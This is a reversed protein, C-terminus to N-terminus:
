AGNQCKEGMRKNRSSQGKKFEIAPSLHIGKQSKTWPTHGKPFHTRGTNSTPHGKKFSGKHIFGDMGKNWPTQGKKFKTDRKPRDVKHAKGNGPSPKHIRCHTARDVAQYNEITDNLSDGDIHHIFEGPKLERGAQKWLYKAYTTWTNPQFIKISRYPKGKTNKRIIITGIPKPVAGTSGKIGKNWAPGCKKGKNWPINGKQFTTSETPM